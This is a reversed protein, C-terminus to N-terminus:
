SEAEVDVERGSLPDLPQSFLEPYLMPVLAGFTEFLRLGSRGFYNHGYTAYVDSSCQSFNSRSPYPRSIPLEVVFQSLALLVAAADWDVATPVAKRGFGWRIYDAFINAGRSRLM